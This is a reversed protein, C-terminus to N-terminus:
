YGAAWMVHSPDLMEPEGTDGLPSASDRALTASDKTYGTEGGKEPCLQQGENSNSYLCTSLIASSYCARLRNFCTGCKVWPCIITDSLCALKMLGSKASCCPVNRANPSAPISGMGDSDSHNSVARKLGVMSLPRYVITDYTIMADM